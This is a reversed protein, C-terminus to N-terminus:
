PDNNNLFQLIDNYRFMPKNGVYIVALEGRTRLNDVTSQCIGLLEATKKKNYLTIRGEPDQMFEKLTQQVTQRIEEITPIHITNM